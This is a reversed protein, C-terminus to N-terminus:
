DSQEIGLLKALAKRVRKAERSRAEFSYDSDLPLHPSAFFESIKQLLAFILSMIVGPQNNCKGLNKEQPKVPWFQEAKSRDAIALGIITARSKM